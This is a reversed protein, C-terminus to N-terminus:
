GKNENYEKRYISPTLWLFESHKACVAYRPAFGVSMDNYPRKGCIGCKYDTPSYMIGDKYDTYPPNERDKDYYLNYKDLEKYGLETIDHYISYGEKRTHIFKNEWRKAQSNRLSNWRSNAFEMEKRAKDAKDEWYKQTKM